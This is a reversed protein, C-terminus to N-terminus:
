EEVKKAIVERNKYYGCAPCIRHPMTLEHCQPCEIFQPKALRMVIARRMRNKSKSRRHQQVGM